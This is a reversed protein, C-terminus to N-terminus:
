PEWDWRLQTENWVYGNQALIAEPKRGRYMEGLLKVLPEACQHCLSNHRGHVVFEFAQPTPTPFVYSAQAEHKWPEATPQKCVDCFAEHTVRIM